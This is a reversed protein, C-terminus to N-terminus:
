PHRRCLNLIPQHHSGFVLCVPCTIPRVGGPIEPPPLACVCVCVRVRACVGVCARVCVCVCMCACVCVCVCVHVCVCVCVSYLLGMIGLVKLTAPHLYQCGHGGGLPPPPTSLRAIRCPFLPASGRRLLGQYLLARVRLQRRPHPRQTMPLFHPCMASHTHCTRTQPHLLAKCGPPAPM